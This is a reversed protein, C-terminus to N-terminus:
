GRTLHWETLALTIRAIDVPKTMLRDGGYKRLQDESYDEPRHTVLVIPIDLHPVTRAFPPLARTPVRGRLIRTLLIGDLVSGPLDVDLLVAVLEEGYTRVLECAERDNEARLLRYARRLRESAASWSQDDVDVYLILARGDVETGPPPSWGPPPPRSPTAPDETLDDGHAREDSM